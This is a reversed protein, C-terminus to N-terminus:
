ARLAKILEAFAPMEEHLTGSLPAPEWAAKSGVFLHTAISLDTPEDFLGVPVWVYSTSRLPNPVPSGCQSCFDSRFGTPKVYSAVLGQGALWVLQESRVIFAANSGAGSQKRCLSCHCQYLRRPPDNVEFAM